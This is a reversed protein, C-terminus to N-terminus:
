QPASGAAGAPKAEALTRTPGNRGELSRLIWGQSGANEQEGAPRRTGGYVRIALLLAQRHSSMDVGHEHQRTFM